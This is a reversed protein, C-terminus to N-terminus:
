STRSASSDSVFVFVLVFVFVFVLVFVFVFVLVLVLVLVPKPTSDEADHLDTRQTFTHRLQLAAQLNEPPMKSMAPLRRRMASSSSWADAGSNQFLASFAWTVM